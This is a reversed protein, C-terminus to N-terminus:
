AAKVCAQCKYVWCEHPNGSLIFPISLVCGSCASKYRRDSRIQDRTNQGEVVHFKRWPGGNSCSRQLRRNSAQFEGVGHLKQNNSWSRTFCIMPPQIEPRPHFNRSFLLFALRFRLFLTRM